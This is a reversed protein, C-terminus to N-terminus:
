ASLRLAPEQRARRAVAEFPVTKPVVLHVTGPAFQARWDFSRCARVFADLAPSYQRGAVVFLEVDRKFEIDAIPRVVTGPAVPMHEPALMVGLGASVLNHLGQGRHRTRNTDGDSLYTERFSRAIECDAPELWRAARLDRLSAEADEALRGDAACAVFVKEDFLGWRDTREPSSGICSSGLAVGIEGSLLDDFVSSSDVEVLDVQLGSVQRTVEALPKMLISASISPTLGVRLAAVKKGKFEKANSRAAEIASL